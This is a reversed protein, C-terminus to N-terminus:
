FLSTQSVKRAFFNAIVLMIINAVNNFLGVAAAFSYNTNIIGRKYVFTSIVESVGVNLDNQMLFVKEWGISIINGIALILLIIITPSITPINIYWIRKIRSAGDIVAAEHLQPDVSSLAAVYIISSWGVGQWVGSWVYMHRFVTPQVIYFVRELGIFERFHNVIGMSPSFLSNIMGVLVVTSIFWPAYLITQVTKRFRTDRLENIMLALIIPLPFGAVLEYVSLVLTNRFLTTFFFGNIFNTFHTFGVWPSGMVGLVGMYNRFAIQVGYMPGYNFIAVFVFAPIM